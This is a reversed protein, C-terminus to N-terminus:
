DFIQPDILFAIWMIVLSSIFGIGIGLLATVFGVSYCLIIFLVLSIIILIFLGRNM